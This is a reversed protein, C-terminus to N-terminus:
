PIVVVEETFIPTADTWVKVRLQGYAEEPRWDVFALDNWTYQSEM